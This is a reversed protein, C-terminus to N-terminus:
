GDAAEEGKYGYLKSNVIRNYVQPTVMFRFSGGDAIQKRIYTSSLALDCPVYLIRLHEAAYDVVEGLTPLAAIAQENRLAGRVFDEQADIVILAKNM